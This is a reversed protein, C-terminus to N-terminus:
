LPYTLDFRMFLYCMEQTNEKTRLRIYSIRKCWLDRSINYVNLWVMACHWLCCVAHCLM